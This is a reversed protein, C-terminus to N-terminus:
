QNGLVHAEISDPSECARWADGCGSRLRKRCCLEEEDGSVSAVGAADCLDAGDPGPGLLPSLKVGPAQRGPFYCYITTLLSARRKEGEM